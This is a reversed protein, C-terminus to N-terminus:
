KKTKVTKVKSWPSYYKTGNVTKYTRIKVWYKKGGKLGTVKKSTKSYGKVTVTKKNKTFKSNTALQIQYGTIRSSSMKASQKTWEDTAAKKAKTVKSLSTGKPNIKFTVTKSGSYNGKLTVVASAKGVNKNNKYAVTYDSAALKTSGDKVTVTPKKVKGNWTYSTASLAMTPTIKKPAISWKVTKDDTTGDEWIYNAKDKLSVTTEYSGANTATNGTATYNEDAPVGTQSKGNYTLNKGSPVVVSEPTLTFVHDIRYFNSSPQPQYAAYRNAPKGNITINSSELGELTYGTKSYVKFTVCYSQDKEFTGTANTGPEDGKYWRYKYTYQDTEGTLDPAGEPISAGISPKELILAISRIPEQWLAYLVLDSQVKDSAFDWKTQFDSELYWGRFVLGEESMVPEGVLANYQVTQDAPKTGHGNNEFSVTYTAVDIWKAKITTDRTVIIENGPDYEEGDVVWKAFEKGDPAGFDCEPLQYRRNEEISRPAMTGTGGSADFSVNYVDGPIHFTQEIRYYNDRPQYAAYNNNNVPKGNITINDRSLEALTYGKKPHVRFLACYDSGKKYTKESPWTGAKVGYYWAYEYWYQETEGSIYDGKGPITAGQVPEDVTLSLSTIPTKGEAFVTGASMPMMAFAMLVAVLIPLLRKKASM